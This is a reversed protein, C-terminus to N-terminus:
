AIKLNICCHKSVHFNLSFMWYYKLQKQVDSNDNKEIIKRKKLLEQVDNEDNDNEFVVFDSQRNFEDIKMQTLKEDKMTNVIFVINKHNKKKM